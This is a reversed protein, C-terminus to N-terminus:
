DLLRCRPPAARRGTYAGDFANEDSSAPEAVALGTLGCIGLVLLHQKYRHITVIRTMPANMAGQRHISAAM